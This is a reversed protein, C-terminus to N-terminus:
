DKELEYIRIQSPTEHWLFPVLVPPKSARAVLAEAEERRPRPSFIAYDTDPCGQPWPGPLNRYTYTTRGTLVTLIAGKEHLLVADPPLHGNVWAATADDDAAFLRRNSSQARAEPLGHLSLALQCLAFTGILAGRPDIAQGPRVFLSGLRELTFVVSSLLLPVIPLLLRDAFTFYVLLMGLYALLYLDLVSRRSAAAFLVAAALLAAGLPAELGFESDFENPPGGLFAHAVCRSIENANTAIRELYGDLDVLPSAPDSPNEHLLATMYDFVLLQTSPRSAEAAAQRAHLVWPLQVAVAVLAVALGQWRRVHEERRRRRLAEALVLGPLVLVGVTRFLCSAGLLLGGLLARRLLPQHGGHRGAACWVGAWFLMLFPFEALIENHAEVSLPNLTALLTVLAAALAGHLQRMAAFLSLMAGVAFAQVVLNCLQWDWPTGSGGVVFSLVWSLGPPRAFFPQGLYLYGQGDALSRAGLLYIAADVLHHWDDEVFATLMLAALVGLASLLLGVLLRQSADAGPTTTM